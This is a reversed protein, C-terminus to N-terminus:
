VPGDYDPQDIRPDIICGAEVDSRYEALEARAEDCGICIGREFDDPYNAPVKCEPCEVTKM